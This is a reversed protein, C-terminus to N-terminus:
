ASRAIAFSRARSSVSREDREPLHKKMMTIRRGARELEEDDREADGERHAHPREPLVVEAEGRERADVRLDDLEYRPDTDRRLGERLGVLAEDLALM